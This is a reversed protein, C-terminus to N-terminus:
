NQTPYWPFTRLRCQEEARYTIKWQKARKSTTADNLLVDSHVSCRTHRNPPRRREVTRLKRRTTNSRWWRRVRRIHRSSEFVRCAESAAHSLAKMSVLQSLTRFLLLLVMWSSGCSFTRKTPIHRLQYVFRTSVFFYRWGRLRRWFVGIREEMQRKSSSAQRM